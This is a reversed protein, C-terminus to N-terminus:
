TWGDALAQERVSDLELGDAGEPAVYKDASEPRGISKLLAERQEPDDGTPIVTLGPINELAKVTAAKVADSDERDPIRIHSSSLDGQLSAAGELDAIVQEVTRPTGDETPKFYPANRLQEPIWDDSM